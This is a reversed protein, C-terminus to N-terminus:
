HARDQAEFRFRHLATGDTRLWRRQVEHPGHIAQVTDWFARSHNMEALHAVEHAAVYDLVEPPAMILRWSYSLAGQASCSGWRSRTDRLTIRTYRRGLRAAYRDSAAVLRDRALARLYASLKAPLQAPDGPVLLRDGEVRVSRGAGAAISLLRGAVPLDTGVAVVQTGGHRALHGRLWDAKEAAFAIGDGESVGRPLTLTVRGDLSSVRLSIRRARSSRKLNIEVPPNGPLLHHGM